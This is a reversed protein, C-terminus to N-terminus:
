VLKRRLIDVSSSRCQVPIIARFYIPVRCAADRDSPFSALPYEERGLGRHARSGPRLNEMSNAVSFRLYGEGYRASRPARFRPWAPRKWCHKPWSRRRGAPRPSTRSCTSRARRCGAPSARSGTSASSSSTAAVSPIRRWRRRGLEPRGQHGRDGGDAHLQGHLFELEDDPAGHADGSRRRMVGYGMRWGTMAYTKSFGDLIITRDKFGRASSRHSHHEGEFILRSYIEDSLVMINRDGIPRRM